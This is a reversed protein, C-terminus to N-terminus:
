LDIDVTAETQRFSTGVKQYGNTVFNMFGTISHTMFQRGRDPLEFLIDEMVTDRRMLHQRNGASEMAYKLKHLFLDSTGEQLPVQLPVLNL